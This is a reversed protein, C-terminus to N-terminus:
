RAQNWLDTWTIGLQALLNRVTPLSIGVVNSPDGTVGQVFAGGLGDLTFGGAVALPEGTNVYADMEDNTIAGMHVQTSATAEATSRNGHENTFIIYHGTHLIGTANMMEQWRAKAETANLPKGYPKGNLEFVSDCGIVITNPKLENNETLELTVKECKAQALAQAIESPAAEAMHREIAEEDIHSVRVVPNIGASILTALRAPSASALILHM